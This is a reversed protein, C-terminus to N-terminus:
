RRVWLEKGVKTGGAYTWVAGVENGTAAVLAVGTESGARYTIAIVEETGIGTGVFRTGDVVWTVRFTDSGTKEVTVSGRYSSGDPNSGNVAFSGPLQAQASGVLAAFSLFIALALKKM